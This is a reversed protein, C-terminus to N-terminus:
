KYEYGDALYAKYQTVLTWNVTRATSTYINGGAKYRVGVKFVDPDVPCKDGLTHAQWGSWIRDISACMDITEIYYNNVSKSHVLVDKDVKGWDVYKREPTLVHYMSGSGGGGSWYYVVGCILFSDGPKLYRYEVVGEYGEIKDGLLLKM